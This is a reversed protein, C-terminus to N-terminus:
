KAIRGLAQHSRGRGLRRAFRSACANIGGKRKIFDALPEDLDKYEAAYRLVRSWRSRMRDDVKDRDATCLIVAAFPEPTRTSQRGRLHLARGGRKVARGELNWWDVLEDFGDFHIVVKAVGVVWVSFMVKTRKFGLAAGDKELDIIVIGCHCPM